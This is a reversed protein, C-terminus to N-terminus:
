VEIRQHQKLKKLKDILEIIPWMLYGINTLEKIRKEPNDCILGNKSWDRNDSISDVIEDLIDDPIYGRTEIEDREKARNLVPQYVEPKANNKVMELLNEKLLQCEEKTKQGHKEIAYIFDLWDNAEMTQEIGSTFSCFEIYKELIAIRYDIVNLIKEYMFSEKEFYTLVFDVYIGNTYSEAPWDVPHWPAHPYLYYSECPYQNNSPISWYCGKDTCYECNRIYAIISQLMPHNKDAIGVERLTKYAILTSVPSSNPNWCDPDFSLFGGDENQYFSLAKVVNDSSGDELFFQFTTLDIHFAYRYIWRVMQKYNEKSLKKM